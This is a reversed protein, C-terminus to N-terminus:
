SWTQFLILYKLCILHLDVQSNPGSVGECLSLPCLPPFPPLATAGAHRGGARRRVNAREEEEPQTSRLAVEPPVTVLSPPGVVEVGSAQVSSVEEDCWEM